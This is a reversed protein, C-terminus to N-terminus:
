SIDYNMAAPRGVPQVKGFFVKFVKSTITFVERIYSYLGYVLICQKIYQINHYNMRISANLQKLMCTGIPVAKLINKVYILNNNLINFQVTITFM